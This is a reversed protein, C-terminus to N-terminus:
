LAMPQTPTFVLTNDDIKRAVIVRWLDGASASPVTSTLKGDQGLFYLVGSPLTLPTVYQRQSVIAVPREDPASGSELTVGDVFPPVVDLSTVPMAVGGVIRFPDNTAFTAGFVVRDTSGGVGSTVLVWDANTIGGQLQWTEKDAAVYVTMGERRRDTTIADRETQDAVERHGGKGFSADHTPYTDSTDSPAMFGTVRVGGPYASM